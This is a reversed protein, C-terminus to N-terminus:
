GRRIQGQYLRWGLWAELLGLGFYAPHFLWSFGIIAVQIAIWAMLALGLLMGGWAALPHRRWALVGSILQAFGNVVLLFLGPILFDKFPSGALWAQDMGLTAGTPNGILAIGAPVAGIGVFIHAAALWRYPLSRDPSKKSM